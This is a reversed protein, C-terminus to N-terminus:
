KQADATLPYDRDLCEADACTTTKAREAAQLHRFSRYVLIGGLTAMMIAGAILAIIFVIVDAPDYYRETAILITLLSLPIALIGIGTRLEALHTRKEAEITRIIALTTKMDDTAWIPRPKEEEKTMVVDGISTM